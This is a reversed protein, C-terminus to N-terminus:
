QPNFLHVPHKLPGQGAHDPRCLCGLQMEGRSFTWNAWLYPVYLSMAVM